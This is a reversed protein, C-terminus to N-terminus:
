QWPYGNGEDWVGDEDCIPAFFALVWPVSAASQVTMDDLTVVVTDDRRPTGVLPGALHIYCGGPVAVVSDVEGTATTVWDVGGWQRCAIRANGGLNSWPPEVFHEVDLRGNGIELCDDQVFLRNTGSEYWHEATEDIRGLAMPAHFRLGNISQHNVLLDVEFKGRQEDVERAMVLAVAATAGYGGGPRPIRPETLIVRSGPWLDQATRRMLPYRRIVVHERARWQALEAARVRWAGERRLGIGTVPLSANRGETDHRYKAGPDPSRMRSEKGFKQDLPNWDYSLVMEDVPDLVREAPRKHASVDRADTAKQAYTVVTDGEQPVPNSPLSLVGYRGGELSWAWSVPGFLGRWIDATAMGPRILISVERLTTPLEEALSAWSFPSAVMSEPIALGLDAIESDLRTFAWLPENATAPISATPDSAYSDWGDSTGTTLLLRLCVVAVDDYNGDSRYGLRFAPVAQIMDEPDGSALSAWEHGEGLAPRDIGFDRPRLVATVAMQAPDGQIQALSFGGRAWSARVVQTEDFPEEFPNTSRKGFLIWLGQRDVNAGGPLQLPADIDDPDSAPPRDLQGTHHVISEFGFSLTQANVDWPNLTSVGGEYLPKWVKMAGDNDKDQLAVEAWRAFTSIRAVWYEPTPNPDLLNQSDVPSFEVYYEDTPDLGAQLAPDYGMALWVKRHLSILVVPYREDPSIGDDIQISITGDGPSLLVYQGHNATFAGDPGVAAAVTSIRDAVSQRVQLTTSGSVSLVFQSSGYEEQDDDDFRQSQFYLGILTENAGPSADLEVPSYVPVARQQSLRAFRRYVWSEVGDCEISWQRGDISVASRISGWWDLDAESFPRWTGNTDRFVRYLACRRGRMVKMSSSIPTAAIEDPEYDQGPHDQAYAFGDICPWYGREGSPGIYETGVHREHLETRAALDDGAEIAQQLPVADDVVDRFTNAVDGDFDLIEFTAPNRKFQGDKLYDVEHRYRPKALGQVVARGDGLFTSGVLESTTSFALPSGDIVLLYAYEAFDRARLVETTPM